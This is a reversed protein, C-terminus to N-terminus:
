LAWRSGHDGQKCAQSGCSSVRPEWSAFHGPNARVGAQAGSAQAPARGGGVQTAQVNVNGERLLQWVVAMDETTEASALPTIMVATYGAKNQRNVACVGISPVLDSRGPYGSAAVVM